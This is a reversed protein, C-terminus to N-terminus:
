KVIRFRFDTMQGTPEARVRELDVRHAGPNDYFRLGGGLLVPVLHVVIEDVLGAAVCERPVSGGTVVLNKGGAVALGQEVLDHIDSVFTFASDRPADQPHHTLVFIPGKWAGGYIEKGESGMGGDYGRRGVAFAGTTAIVEEVLASRTTGDVAGTGDRFRGQGFVWDLSDGPGAIFGDVSMTVHWVVKGAM